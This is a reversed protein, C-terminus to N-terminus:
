SMIAKRVKVVKQLLSRLQDLPLMSKGDSLADVPNPHTEIFLGDAGTAIASLAVSTIMEPDGGSIGDKQNPQQLSHTCDMVVPAGLKKLKPVSTVDVVLNEYGFTFGRECLWINKNGTSQVKELPFKMAEPSLFQGKKISVVKGTQGAALLLETQRCLFAPIQLIDVYKAVLEPEHSEHVDTITKLDLERGVGQLIELSEKFGIGRFSELRTRNAKKFSAKFIFDIDLEDCISKVKKGILLPIESDEIICPGAVLFLKNM